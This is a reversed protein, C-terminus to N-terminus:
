EVIHAGAVARCVYLEGAGYANRVDAAFAGTGETNVLAVACGGFGAGTMRAGRCSPHARAISVIEDLEPSSVQYLERLSEHSGDMLAAIETEDDTRLARAMDLTRQNERVVHLARRYDTSDMGSRSADLDSESVDRLASVDRKRERVARRARECSARRDNYASEALLRRTGTDMVVVSLNEPISVAEISLDRCDLLMASGERALASAMQDMIGSKHGIYDNEVRQGALSARKGDWPEGSVESLARFVAIELAASSSLGAGIPVNGSVVFDMGKVPVGEARLVWAVGAAYDFWSPSGSCPSLEEFSAAREQEFDISYGRFISDVRPAFVVTVYRDIAVPLVFGDNYDTHEGILNVRGPARAVRHRVDDQGFRERFVTLPDGIMDPVSQAARM